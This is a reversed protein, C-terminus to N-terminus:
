SRTSKMCNRQRKCMCLGAALLLLSRPEPVNSGDVDAGGGTGALAYVRVYDFQVNTVSAAQGFNSRWVDYDELGIVGDTNADAGSGKGVNQGVTSRWLIYDATDVMGNRDYDGRAGYGGPPIPGAFASNVESSVIVYEPAHSIPSNGGNWIPIGDYYFTYSTSTWKLGFTHWSDNGLGPLVNSLQRNLHQEPGYGDWILAQHIRNTIDTTPTLGPYNYYDMPNYVRHELIDIEVGAAQPNGIPNAITASQLWFASATGSTDHFMARTEFYGFKQNMGNVAGVNFAPNYLYNGIMGSYNTGGESYTKIKLAGNGVSVAEPILVAHDQAAGRPGSARHFWKTLDLEDSNFEDSWTLAGVGSPLARAPARILLAAAVAMALRFM